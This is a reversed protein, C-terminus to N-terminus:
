DRTSRALNPRTRFRAASDTGNAHGDVFRGLLEALQPAQQRGYVLEVMRSDKHGMMMGILHPPVGEARMWNSFTRRLDNPSCSPIGIRDCAAKMDRLRNQWPEFLM